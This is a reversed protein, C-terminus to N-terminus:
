PYSGRQGESHGKWNGAGLCTGVMKIPKIIEKGKKLQPTISMYCYILKPYIVIIQFKYQLITVIILYSYVDGYLIVFKIKKDYSSKPNVRLM